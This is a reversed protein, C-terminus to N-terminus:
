SKLAWILKECYLKLVFCAFIYRMRVIFQEYNLHVVGKLLFIYIDM